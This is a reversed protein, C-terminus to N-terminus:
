GAAGGRSSTNTSRWKLNVTPDNM